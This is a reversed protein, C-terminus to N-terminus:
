SYQVTGLPSPKYTFIDPDISDIIPVVVTSWSDSVVFSSISEFQILNILDFILDFYNFNFWILHLDSFSMGFMFNQASFFFFKIHKQLGESQTIM